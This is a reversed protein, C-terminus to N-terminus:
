CKQRGRTYALRLWAPTPDRGSEAEMGYWGKCGEGPCTFVWYEEVGRPLPAQPLIKRLAEVASTARRPRYAELVGDGIWASAGERIRKEIFREIRDWRSWAEPGTLQEIRPLQLDELLAYALLRTSGDWSFGTYLVKFGAEGLKVGIFNALRSLRGEVDQPPERTFDGRAAVAVLPAKLTPEPTEEPTYLHYYWPGPRHLYTRAAIVLKALSRLTVAAAVNRKPDVPDPIIVPHGRYRKALEGRDGVGLPDLYVPPKWSSVTELVEKFGGLLITLVEALYGSFGGKATEAGYVGIGKLFSKLLRVEDALHNDLNEKVWRTHFPTREVGMAERPDSIRRAPVIDAELGMLSVTVYPHQSYKTILPLSQLCNYLINLANSNIWDYTVGHILVFVDIEWKDRLLTGKAYSGQVEVEANVGRADLCKQLTDHISRYFSGLLRLQVRDPKVIDLIQEEVRPCALM